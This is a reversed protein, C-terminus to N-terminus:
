NIKWFSFLVAFGIKLKAISVNEERFVLRMLVETKEMVLLYLRKIRQFAAEMDKVTKNQGIALIVKRAGFIVVAVCDGEGEVSIIRADETM